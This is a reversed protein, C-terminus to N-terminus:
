KKMVLVCVSVGRDAAWQTFQESQVNIGGNKFDEIPVKAGGSDLSKEIAHLLGVQNGAGVYGTEAKLTCNM